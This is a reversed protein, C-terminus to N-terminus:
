KFMQHSKRITEFIKDDKQIRRFSSLKESRKFIKHLKTFNTSSKIFIKSALMFNIFGDSVM